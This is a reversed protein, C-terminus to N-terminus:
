EHRDGKREAEAKAASRRNLRRLRERTGAGRGTEAAAPVVGLILSDVDRAGVRFRVHQRPAQLALGDWHEDTVLGAVQEPSGGHRYVADLNL